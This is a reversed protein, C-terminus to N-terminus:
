QGLNMIILSRAREKASYKFRRSFQEVNLWSSFHESELLFFSVHCLASVSASDRVSFRITPAHLGGETKPVAFIYGSM